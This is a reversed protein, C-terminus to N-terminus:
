VEGRIFLLRLVFGRLFAAMELLQQEGLHRDKIKAAYL